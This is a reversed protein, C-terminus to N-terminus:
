KIKGGAFPLLAEKLHARWNGWNHGELYREIQYNIDKEELAKQFKLHSKEMNEFYGYSLFIFAHIDSFSKVENVIRENDVQFAGSQSFVYDIQAAYNKLAYISIVGGLSAGGIALHNNKLGYKKKVFPLLETFLMKIYADNFRYERFRNRPKVFLAIVPELQKEGILNDLIIKAKGFRLYDSGDQFIIIPSNKGAKIHRYVYIHRRNGLLKSKFILTDLSSKDFEPKFLVEQPFRYAPMALVSNFGYAGEEKLPNFPDLYWYNGVVFKYEIRASAPLVLGLYWFNTGEIPKLAISDPRWGTLDGALYVPQKQQSTDEFVFYAVSDEIFPFTQQTTFNKLMITKQNTPLDKVKQLLESFTEQKSTCQGLFSAVILFYFFYKIRM